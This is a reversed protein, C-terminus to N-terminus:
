KKQRFQGTFVLAGLNASEATAVLFLQLLDGYLSIFSLSCDEPCRNRLETM